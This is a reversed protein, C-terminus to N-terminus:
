LTGTQLPHCIVATTTKHVIFCYETCKRYSDVTCLVSLAEGPHTSHAPLKCAAYQVWTCLTSTPIAALGYFVTGQVLFHLLKRRAIHCSLDRLLRKWASFHPVIGGFSIIAPPFSKKSAPLFTIVWTPSKGPCQHKFCKRSKHFTGCSRKIVALSHAKSKKKKLKIQTDWEFSLIIFHSLFFFVIM